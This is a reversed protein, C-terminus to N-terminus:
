SSSAQVYRISDRVRNTWGAGYIHFTGLSRYFRMRYNIMCQFDNGCTTYMRKGVGVGANYSMDHVQLAIHAPMNIAGSAVYYRQYAIAEHEQPTLHQCVHRTPLGQARRWSNYAAQTTGAFTLVPDVTCKNGEWRRQFAYIWRWKADGEISLVVASAQRTNVTRVHGQPTKESSQVATPRPMLVLIVTATCVTSVIAALLITRLWNPSLWIAMLVVFCGVTLLVQFENM